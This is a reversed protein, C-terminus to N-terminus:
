KSNVPIHFWFHFGFSSTLEFQLPYDCVLYIQLIASVGLQWPCELKM